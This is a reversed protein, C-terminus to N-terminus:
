ERLEKLGPWGPDIGETRLLEANVALVGEVQQDETLMYGVSASVSELASEREPPRRDRRKAM